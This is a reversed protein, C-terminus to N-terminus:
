TYKAIFAMFKSKMQKKYSFTNFNFYVLHNKEFLFM